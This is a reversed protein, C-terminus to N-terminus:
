GESRPRFFFLTVADQTFGGKDVPLAAYLRRVLATSPRRKHTLLYKKVYEDTTGATGAVRRREDVPLKNWYDPFTTDEVSM